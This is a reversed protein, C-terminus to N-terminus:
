KKPALRNRLEDLTLAVVDFGPKMEDTMTALEKADDMAILTTVMQQARERDEMTYLQYDLKQERELNQIPKPYITFFKTVGDLTLQVARVGSGCDRVLVLLDTVAETITKESEPNWETFQSLVLEFRQLAKRGITKGPEFTDFIRSDAGHVGFRRNTHETDGFAM